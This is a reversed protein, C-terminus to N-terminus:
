LEEMLLIGQFNLYIRFTAPLVYIDKYFPGKEPSMRENKPHYNPPDIEFSWSNKLSPLCGIKQIFFFM